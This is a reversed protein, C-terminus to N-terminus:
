VIGKRVSIEKVLEELTDKVRWIAYWVDKEMKGLAEKIASIQSETRSMLDERIEEEMKRYINGYHRLILSEPETLKGKQKKNRRLRM